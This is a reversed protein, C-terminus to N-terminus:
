KLLNLATLASSMQVHLKRNHKWTKVQEPSRNREDNQSIVVLSNPAFYTFTRDFVIIFTVNAGKLLEKVWDVEWDPCTWIVHLEGDCDELSPRSTLSGAGEVHFSPPFGLPFHFFSPARPRQLYSVVIEHQALVQSDEGLLEIALAHQGDNLRPLVIGSTWSDITAVFLDDIYMAFTEHAECSVSAILVDQWEASIEQGHAPHLIELGCVSDGAETGASICVLSWFIVAAAHRCRSPM